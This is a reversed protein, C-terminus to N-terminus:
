ESLFLDANRKKTLSLLRVYRRAEWVDESSKGLRREAWWEARRRIWVEEKKEESLGKVSM